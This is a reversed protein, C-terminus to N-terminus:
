QRRRRLLAWGCLAVGLGACAFFVDGLIGGDGSREPSSNAKGQREAGAGQPPVRLADQLTPDMERPPEKGEAATKLWQMALAPTFAALKPIRAEDEKAIFVGDPTPIGDSLRIKRWPTKPYRLLDAVLIAEMDVKIRQNGPQEGLYEESALNEDADEPQFLERVDVFARDGRLTYSLLYYHVDVLGDARFVKKKSGRIFSVDEKPERRFMFSSYFNLLLFDNPRYSAVASESIIYPQYVGNGKGLYVQWTMAGRPGQTSTDSLFLEPIGDGTVDYEAKFVYGGGTDSWWEDVVEGNRALARELYQFVEPMVAHVREVLCFTFFVLIRGLKM